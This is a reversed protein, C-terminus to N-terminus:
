YLLRSAVYFEIKERLQMYQTYSRPNDALTFAEERTRELHRCEPILDKVCNPLADRMDQFTQCGRLVLTFAQRIRDKEYEMAKREAVIADMEGSLSRHVPLYKGQRRMGGSLESYIVGMHRFGDTSGGLAINRPVMKLARKTLQEEEREFLLNLITMVTNFLRDNAAM